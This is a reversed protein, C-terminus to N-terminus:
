QPRRAFAYRAAYGWISYDRDRLLNPRAESILKLAQDYDGRMMYICMLVERNIREDGRSYLDEYFQQIKELTGYKEKIQEAQATCRKVLEVGAENWGLNEITVLASLQGLHCGMALMIQARTGKVPKQQAFVLNSDNLRRSTISVYASLTVNRSDRDLSRFMGSVQFDFLFDGEDRVFLSERYFTWGSAAVAPEVCQKM